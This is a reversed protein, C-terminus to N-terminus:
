RKDIISLPIPGDKPITHPCSLKFNIKSSYECNRNNNYIEPNTMNKLTRKINNIAWVSTNGILKSFRPDCRIFPDIAVKNSGTRMSAKLYQLRIAQDIQHFVSDLNNAIEIARKFASYSLECQGTTSIGMNCHWKTYASIWMRSDKMLTQIYSEVKEPMHAKEAAKKVADLSQSIQEKVTTFYLGVVEKKFVEYDDDTKFLKHFNAKLNQELIHWVCLMKNSEPFVKSSANRLAQDRDLIFVDLLCGYTNYIEICLTQLFWTYSAESEDEIWAIAIQFSALAGKKNSVNNIGIASVLPFKYINTKYTADVILVKSCRAMCKASEEFLKLLKQASDNNSGKNLAYRIRACKNVIDKTCIIGGDIVKNASQLIVYPSKQQCGTLNSNKRAFAFRNAKAASKAADKFAELLEFKDDVKPM